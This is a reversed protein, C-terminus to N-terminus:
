TNEGSYFGEVIEEIVSYAAPIHRTLSSLTAFHKFGRLVLTFIGKYILTNLSAALSPM